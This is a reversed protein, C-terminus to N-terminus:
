FFKPEYHTYEKVYSFGKRTYKYEIVQEDMNIFDDYCVIDHKIATGDDRVFYTGNSLTVNLQIEVKDIGRASPNFVAIM